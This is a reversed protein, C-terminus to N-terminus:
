MSMCVDYTISSHMKLKTYTCVVCPRQTWTVNTENNLDLLDRVSNVHIDFWQNTHVSQFTVFGSTGTEFDFTDSKSAQFM